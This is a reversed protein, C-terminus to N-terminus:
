SYKIFLHKSQITKLLEERQTESAAFIATSLIEGEAGTNTIVAAQGAGEVWRGSEPSIIHKREFSDNGSTTLCNNHLHVSEENVLDPSKGFSIKWGNGNPHDGLALVSSNGMNILANSQQHQCLIERIKDLAYGKLFGSLDIRTGVQTYYISQNEAILSIDAIRGPAYNDSQITIDFCGLTKPYYEICIEIMEYLDKSISVPSLAATHNVRYLESETNYFNGIKELRILENYIEEVILKLSVEPKGYILIDVRTHMATFWAYLLGEDENQQKYIQQISM